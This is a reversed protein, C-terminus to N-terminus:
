QDVGREPWKVELFSVQYGMTCSVPYAKPLDLHTQFMEGVSPKSIEPCGLECSTVLDVVSEPQKLIHTIHMIM